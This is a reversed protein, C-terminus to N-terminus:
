LRKESLTGKHAIYVLQQIDDFSTPVNFILLESQKLGDLVRLVATIM